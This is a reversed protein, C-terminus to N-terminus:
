LKWLTQAKIGYKQMFKNKDFVKEELEGDSSSNYDEDRECLLCRDGFSSQIKRVGEEIEEFTMIRSFLEFFEKSSNFDKKYSDVGLNDFLEQNQECIELASAALKRGEERISDCNQKVLEQLSSLPKVHKEQTVDWHSIIDQFKELTTNHLLNETLTMFIDRAEREKLLLTMNVKNAFGQQQQQQLIHQM